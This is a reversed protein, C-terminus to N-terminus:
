ILRFVSESFAILIQLHYVNGNCGTLLNRLKKFQSEYAETDIPFTEVKRYYFQIAINKFTWTNSEQIHFKIFKRLSSIFFKPAPPRRMKLVM